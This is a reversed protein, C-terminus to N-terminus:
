ATVGLYTSFASEFDLEEPFVRSFGLGFWIEREVEQHVRQLEARTTMVFPGIMVTEDPVGPSVGERFSRGGPVAIANGDHHFQADIIFPVDPTGARLRLKESMLLVQAVIVSFWGPYHRNNSRLSLRAVDVSGDDGITWFSFATESCQEARATHAKPQWGRTPRGHGFIHASSAVTKSRLTPLDVPYQVLEAAIGRLGIPEEPIATCRFALHPESSPILEQSYSPVLRGAKKTKELKLLL